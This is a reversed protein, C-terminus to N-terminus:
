RGAAPVPLDRYGALRVGAIRLTELVGPDCLAERETDRQTAYSSDLTADSYGPHCVLETVGEEVSAITALLRERTWYPEPGVDGVVRDPAALGRGRIRGAMEPSLARLPLGLSAALDLTVDLVPAFRHLHHHSDVHSPPRGFVTGFRAAQAALERGMQGPDGAQAQRRPDRIFRGSGDVLSPLATAPLVPQGFTLNLHLGVDLGPASRVLDRAGELGPLNVMVTTSTVLGHRHAELIGRTVGDTLNCDDANVILVRPVPWGM